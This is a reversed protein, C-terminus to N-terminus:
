NSSSTVNQTLEKTVFSGEVTADFDFPAPKDDHLALKKIDTNFVQTHWGNLAVM